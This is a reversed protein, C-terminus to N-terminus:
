KRGKNNSILRVISQKVMKTTVHEIPNPLQRNIVEKLETIRIYGPQKLMAKATKSVTATVDVINGNRVITNM